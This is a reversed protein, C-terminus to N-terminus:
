RLRQVAPLGLAAVLEEQVAATPSRDTGPEGGVAWGASLVAARLATLADGSRAYHHAFSGLLTDGAGSQYSVGRPTVPSVQWIRRDARLGVIAGDAGCGVVVVPTRHARWMDAVWDVPGRPLGEHSCFVAHAAAMWDRNHASDVTDVLHADTIFPVGREVAVPVLPRTFSINSLVALDCGGLLQDFVPGPYTLGPTDRLDSTGSRTGGPDFLLLSRPQEACVQVGPGFLGQDRLGQAAVAGLLDSGVYTAFAVESGLRTVTKAVTHGSGSLRFHVGGPLRRSSILPVPFAPVSCATSATVVGAM